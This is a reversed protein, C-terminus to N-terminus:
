GFYSSSDASRPLVMSSLRQAPARSNIAPATGSRTAAQVLLGVLCAAFCIGFSARGGVSTTVGAPFVLFTGTLASILAATVPPLIM